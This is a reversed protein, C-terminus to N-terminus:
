RLHKTSKQNGGRYWHYLYVGQMLLIPENRSQVRRYFDWDVGLIGQEKFHVLKWLDKRLLILFGSAPPEKGAPICTVGHKEALAKGHARHLTIDDGRISADRQWTCGIRQTKAYFLRCEPYAKIIGDILHGYNPITFMADADTLCAYDMDNPLLSM